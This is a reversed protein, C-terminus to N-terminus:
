FPRDSGARLWTEMDGDRNGDRPGPGDAPEFQKLANLIDLAERAEATTALKRLRQLLVQRIEGPTVPETQEKLANVMALVWGCDHHAVGRM